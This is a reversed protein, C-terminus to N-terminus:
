NLVFEILYENLPLSYKESRFGEELIVQYKKNSELNKVDFILQKGDESFEVKEFEPFHERGLEGLGFSRFRIDMKQSFNIIVKTFNGKVEDSQIEFNNVSIVKPRNNKYELKLESLPKEFYGIKDIFNEVKEQNTYDLEILERIAEEKNAAQNYYKEAMAYGVYYGLDRMKFENNEDNWVWNYTWPSFMEKEFVERVQKDNAKGYAIAPTKSEKKLAITPVFEAVGEFLTQSLLDYGGIANQQTHVYEHINLAVINEIPNTQFYNKLHSLRKPFESSITNKDATALETGILLMSDIATGNTRLAGITFYIKTPKLNPYVVKLKQIGDELEKSLKDAQLANKRVSQWFLPYNNISTLYEQPTYSRARIIGDLGKSDKDFFLEKLYKEQLITDKTQSIKDYAKWFNSIDSTIIIAEQQTQVSTSVPKCSISFLLILVSFLSKM